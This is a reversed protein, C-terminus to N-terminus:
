LATDIAEVMPKGASLRLLLNEHNNMMFEGHDKLFNRVSSRPIAITYNAGVPIDDDDEVAQKKDQVIKDSWREIYHRLVEQEAPHVLGCLLFLVSDSERNKMWWDSLSYDAKRVPLLDNLVRKQTQASELILPSNAGMTYAMKWKFAPDIETKDEAPPTNQKDESM